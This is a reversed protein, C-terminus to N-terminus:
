LSRRARFFTRAFAIDGTMGLDERADFLEVDRFGTNILATRVPEMAHCRQSIVTDARNWAGELRFMTIDCRAIKEEARYSARSACV